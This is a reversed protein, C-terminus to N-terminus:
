RKLGTRRDTLIVQIADLQLVAFEELVDSCSKRVNDSWRGQMVLNDVGVFEQILKFPFM